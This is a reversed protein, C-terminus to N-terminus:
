NMEDFVSFDPVYQCGVSENSQTYIDRFGFNQAAKIVKTYELSTIKRRLEPFKEAEHMPTYQRMISLIFSNGPFHKSLTDLIAISDSSAGPLVLHRIIVGKKLHEGQFSPVGTQRVMEKIATLAHDAYNEAKAYRMSLDKSHFKFDPLYIDVLGDLKKLTESSEYGGCNYLIPVTLGREKASEIAPIITEVYPTPSVLNINCAGLSELRLFLDALDPANMEKGLLHSSIKHNQCFVCRLQCGSFFVAGSGKGYCICPEEWQHLMVKAITPIASAGCFGKKESRDINCNRPCLTCLSRNM